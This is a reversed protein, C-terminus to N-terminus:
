PKSAAYKKAKSTCVSSSRSNRWAIARRTLPRQRQIRLSPRARTRRRVSQDLHERRDLPVFNSDTLPLGLHHHGLQRLRLTRDNAEQAQVWPGVPQRLRNGPGSSFAPFNGRGGVSLLICITREDVLALRGLTGDKTLLLDGRKPRSKATLLTRYAEETTCRATDFQIRGHNIDRATIMYIGSESTPTPNTFGYSVFSTFQELPSVEWDQPIVGMEAQKYGPKLEM